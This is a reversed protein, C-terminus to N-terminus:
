KRGKLQKEKKALKLTTPIVTDPNLSM